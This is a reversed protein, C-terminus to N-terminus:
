ARGEDLMADIFGDPDFCALDEATEGTGVYEIPIGLRSSMNLVSGGRATGDLKTIVLGTVPLASSFHEGQSIANQGVSGDLVLLVSHPAGEMAKNCVRHVKTLEDLLGKQNPLRGATDILVCDHGAAKARCISDYAVAGPDSGHRGSFVEIGLREGWLALQEQAAARFTDACSLLPRLGSSKAKWALRAITTTKGSGNVGVFMTVDPKPLAARVQRPSPLARSLISRVESRWRDGAEPVRRLAGIIQETMECGLDAELLVQEARALTEEDMRGTSFLRSLKESLAGRTGFLKDFIAM